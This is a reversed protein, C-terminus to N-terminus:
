WSKGKLISRISEEARKEVLAIRENGALKIKELLQEINAPKELFDKAGIKMAEVSKEVTGYGTLLIIQLDPNNELMRRMTEIGDLGPMQMDLIIADFKEASVKELAEKGSSATRAVLGRSEMRESLTKTFEEEDDVLLIKEGAM